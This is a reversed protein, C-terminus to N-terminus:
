KCKLGPLVSMSVYPIVAAPCATCGPPPLVELTVELDLSLKDLYHWVLHQVPGQDPLSDPVCYKHRYASKLERVGDKLATEYPEGLNRQHDANALLRWSEALCHKRVTAPSGSTLRKLDRASLRMRM